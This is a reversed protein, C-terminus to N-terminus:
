EKREAANLALRSFDVLESLHDAIETARASNPNARAEAVAQSHTKMALAHLQRLETLM